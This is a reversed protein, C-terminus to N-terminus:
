KTGRKPKYGLLLYAACGCLFIVTGIAAISFALAALCMVVYVGSSHFPANALVVGGVGGLVYMIAVGLLRASIWKLGRM